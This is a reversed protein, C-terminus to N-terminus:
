LPLQRPKRPANAFLRDYLPRPLMRLLKATIAMQWPITAYARRQDIIRVIKAAANEASMIFPMRYPNVATMPTAIYGPNITTVQINSGALEVRLSELYTILAAKSASYASGGPLGRIGAVSGVGVLVGRRATRMPLIFPQFATVTGLVNTNMVAQFAKLDDAQETLTGVSIGAAAIVIDPVGARAIFDAAAAQMASSDCVDLPYPTAQPLTACLAALKDGRRAVLGLTAGRAAYHRALAAGLGSSAGTIFIRLPM